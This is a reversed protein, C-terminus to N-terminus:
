ISLKHKRSQFTPVHSPKPGKSKLLFDENDDNQSAALALMGKLGVRSFTGVAKEFVKKDIFFGKDALDSGELAFESRSNGSSNNISEKCVFEGSPSHGSTMLPGFVMTNSPLLAGHAESEGTYALLKDFASM